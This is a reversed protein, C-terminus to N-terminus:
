EDARQTVCRELAGGIEKRNLKRGIISVKSQEAPRVPQSSLEGSALEMLISKNGVRFIGKARVVEGMESANLREFFNSLDKEDFTLDSYVLGFSEYGLADEEDHLHIAGKDGIWGDQRHDSILTPGTQLTKSGSPTSLALQYQSWDVAGFETTIVTTDPNIASIADRTLMAKRKDVRDCKNLLVIRANKVQSEVFNPNAKYLGMFGTADSILVYHIRSIVKEFLQAEIISRIQAITAVGTPEIIVRQPQISQMIDLLQTRFDSQLTCCICGSPMEVVNGGREKLLTGDIGVDGFENVLVVIKEKGGWEELVKTIFTTKGSGLFGYVIDVIM